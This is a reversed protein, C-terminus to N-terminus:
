NRTPTGTGRVYGKTDTCILLRMTDGCEPCKVDTNDLMSREVEIEKICHTCEYDYRPM